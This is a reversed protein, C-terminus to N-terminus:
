GGMYAGVLTIRDGDVVPSDLSHQVGLVADNVIVEIHEALENTQPDWLAEELQPFRRGVQHLVDRVTLGPRLEEEFLRRRTGDGGVFRTIWSVAEVTVREAESTKAPERAKDTM